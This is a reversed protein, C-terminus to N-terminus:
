EYPPPVDEMEVGTSTSEVSSDDEPCNIRNTLSIQWSHPAGVSQQVRPYKQSTVGASDHESYPPPPPLGVNALLRESLSMSTGLTLAEDSVGTRLSLKTEMPSAVNIPSDVISSTGATGCDTSSQEASRSREESACSPYREGSVGPDDNPTDRFFTNKAFNHGDSPSSGFNSVISSPINLKSLM